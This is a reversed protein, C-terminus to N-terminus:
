AEPYGLEVLKAALQARVLADGQVTVEGNEQVVDVSNVGPMTGLGDRITKVCGGCKVNQVRFTECQV